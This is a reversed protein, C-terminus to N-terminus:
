QYNRPRHFSFLFFCKFYNWFKILSLSVKDKRVNKRLRLAYIEVRIKFDATLDHFQMKLNSFIIRNNSQREKALTVEVQDRHTCVCLYFYNFHADFISDVKLEFELYKITLTGIGFETQLENDNCQWQMILEELASCEKLCSMLMLQEAEILERSNHFENTSRCMDLANQIPQRMRQQQRITEILQLFKANTVTKPMMEIQNCISEFLQRRRSDTSSSSVTTCTSTTDSGKSRCEDIPYCDDYKDSKNMKKSDIRLSSRLKNRLFKLNPSM